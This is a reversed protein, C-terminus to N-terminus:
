WVPSSSVFLTNEESKIWRQLQTCARLVSAKLELPSFVAYLEFENTVWVVVSERESTQFYMKNPKTLLHVRALVSQYLRFLRRQSLKNNYPAEFKPTTFQNVDKSKYLFHRLSAVGTDAASANACV